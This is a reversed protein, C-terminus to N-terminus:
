KILNDFPPVILDSVNKSLNNYLLMPEPKASTPIYEIYLIFKFLHVGIGCLFLDFLFLDFLHKQQKEEM